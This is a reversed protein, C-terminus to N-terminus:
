LDGTYSPMIVKECCLLFREETAKDEWQVSEMWEDDSYSIVLEDGGGLCSGSSLPLKRLTPCREVDIKKLCPFLLPSRYISKLMPLNSLELRVLKDFPTKTGGANQECAAREESLIEKVKDLSQLKLHALKPVFLLWTVDKLRNCGTIIVSSLNALTPKILFTDYSVRGIEIEVVGCRKITLKRLQEMTTPLVLCAVDQTDRICVEEIRFALEHARFLQKLASSSSIDINLSELRTLHQLEEITSADLTVNSGQLRLVGLSSVDSLGNVSKLRKTMELNLHKLRKLRGLGDPLREIKTRSLNLYRLALLGSIEEPLEKLENFSMNLVVLKPMCQFFEGSIRVLNSNQQLFLTTLKDCEHCGSIEKIENNMLSMRRVRTWDQVSVVEHLGVGAQVVWREEDVLNSAVWLAMKRVVDHMQVFKTNDDGEMLLGARVLTDINEYGQNQSISGGYKGLFGEAEWYNVLSAKSLMYGAPFLSCYQFCSKLKEGKLSDYSYKLIQLIEDETGASETTPSSALVQLAGNWERVKNKCSMTEGLVNLALPLGHCREAVKRAIEQIKSSHGGVKLQFLDWADNEALCQVEIPDAVGMQVCVERSRTTFAIKCKNKKTPSPVGIKRLDVKTWVDDLLLAFRKDKMFNHIDNAKQSEEKQNWEEGHFGLKKGIEEQIKEVRLDQSMVVWVVIDFRATIKNSIERLITSKGVGGVGYLGISRTGGSVFRSLARKLITERGVIAPRSSFLRKKEKTPTKTAPESVVEFFGKTKLDSVKKLMVSVREGYGYNSRSNKSCLGSVSLRELEATRRSILYSVQRSINDVNKLWVKVEPLRQMSRTDEEREVRRLVDTQSAKLEEMDRQMAALNEEFIRIHSAQFCSLYSVDKEVQDGSFPVSFFGGM